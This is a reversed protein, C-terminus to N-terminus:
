ANSHMKRSTIAVQRSAMAAREAEDVMAKKEEASASLYIASAFIKQRAVKRSEKDKNRARLLVEEDGEKGHYWERARKTNPNQSLQDASKPPRGRKKGTRAKNKKLGPHLLIPM